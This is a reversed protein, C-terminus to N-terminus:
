SITYKVCPSIGFQMENNKCCHCYLDIGNQEILSAENHDRRFGDFWCLKSITKISNVPTSQFFFSLFVSFSRRDLAQFVSGMLFLLEMRGWIAEIVVHWFTIMSKQGTAPFCTTKLARLGTSCNAYEMHRNKNSNCTAQKHCRMWVWLSETYCKAWVFGSVLKCVM